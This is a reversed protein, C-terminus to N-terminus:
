VIEQELGLLSEGLTTSGNCALFADPDSEIYESFEWAKHEEVTYVRVADDAECEGDTELTRGDPSEYRDLEACDMFSGDYGHDALWRLTAYDRAGKIKVEYAAMNLVEV